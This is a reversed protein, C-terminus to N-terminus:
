KATKWDKALKLVSAPLHCQHYSIVKYGEKQYHLVDEKYRKEADSKITPSLSWIPDDCLTPYNMYIIKKTKLHLEEMGGGDDLPSISLYDGNGNMKLIGHEYADSPLDAAEATLAVCALVALWISKLVM